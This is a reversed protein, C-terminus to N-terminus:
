DDDAAKLLAGVERPVDWRDPDLHHQAAWAVTLPDSGAGTLLVAGIRGHSVYRGMRGALGPRGSWGAVRGPGLAHSTLTAAVRAWTGMEVEVKGVDHLLAAALVERRSGYPAGRAQVRRAVSLAHRRDPAGMRRWLAAEGPLLVAAAFAEEDPRPEAPGLSQVFRRALHWATRM